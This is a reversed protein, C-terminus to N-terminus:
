VANKEYKEYNGYERAIYRKRFDEDFKVQKTLRMRQTITKTAQMLDKENKGVTNFFEQSDTAFDRMRNM